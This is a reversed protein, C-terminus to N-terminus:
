ISKRRLRRANASARTHWPALLSAADLEVWPQALLTASRRAAAAKELVMRQYETRSCTGQAMMLSRRAITEWSALALETMMLPVLFPSPTKKTM